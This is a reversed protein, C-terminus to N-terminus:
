LLITDLGFGCVANTAVNSAFINQLGFDFPDQIFTLLIPSLKALQEKAGHEKGVGPIGRNSFPVFTDRTM